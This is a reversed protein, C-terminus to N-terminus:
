SFQLRCAASERVQDITTKAQTTRAGPRACKAVMGMQAERLAAAEAAGGHMEMEVQHEEAVTANEAMPVLEGGKRTDAAMTTTDPGSRRTMATARGGSHLRHIITTGDPTAETTMGAATEGTMRAIGGPPATAIETTATEGTMTETDALISARLHDQWTITQWKEVKCDPLYATFPSAKPSCIM